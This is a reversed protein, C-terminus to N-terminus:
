CTEWDTDLAGTKHFTGGGPTFCITNLPAELGPTVSPDSGHAILSISEEGDSGYLLDIRTYGPAGDDM